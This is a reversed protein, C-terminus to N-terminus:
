RADDFLRALREQDARVGFDRRLADVYAEVYEQNIQYGLLQRFSMEDVASLKSRLFEIGRVEAVAKADGAAAPGSLVAGKEAAFLKEVFDPALNPDDVGRRVVTELAARNMEAAAQELTKGGDISKMAADVANAIRARREEARWKAEVEDRIEDFPILAAPRVDDVQVFFYGGDQMETADSEEGEATVFAAKLVEGPIDPAIAGGPTFSFSDVPGFSKASIGAKAAAESLIAGTDRAEEIAEVAEFVKKRTEAGTLQAAIEGRVEEFAKIQPPTVGAVQAVTWGFAGRVPGVTSGLTADPSFAAEGAKPDLLDRQRVETFTVAALTLGKERAVAEFPKGSKVAAAAAAAEEESDFTIQYLTRREPQEYLRARNAEYFRRLEEDQASVEAAFNEPRVIAATFTRYEPSQFESARAAHFARLEEETPSKAPGALEETIMLYNIRRLETERLLLGEAFEAPAPAGAALSATLQSRLLDKKLIREFEPVSLNNSRLINDLVIQDFKGTSPNQFAENKTLFESVISDPMVLGLKEAEIELLTRVAIQDAVQDGLRQARAEEPTFRGGAEERRREFARSYERQLAANSIEVDGVTMLPRQVFDRLEPVGWLAFAPVLLAVFLWAGASKLGKRLQKLM